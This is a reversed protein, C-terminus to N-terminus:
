APAELNSGFRAARTDDLGVDACRCDTLAAVTDAIDEAKDGPHLGEPGVFQELPATKLANEL